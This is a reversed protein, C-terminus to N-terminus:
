AATPHPTSWLSEVLAHAAASLQSDAKVAIHITRVAWEDALQVTTIGPFREYPRLAASPLLAIGLGSQVMRCVSDMGNVEIRARLTTGLAKAKTNLLTALATKPPLAIWDEDILDRFSVSGFDVLRHGAPVVVALEERKSKLLLLGEYADSAVLVGVDTEGSILKDAIVSSTDEHLDVRVDPYARLFQALDEPLHQVIASVSASLRVHGRVGSALDSLEDDLQDIERIINQAYKAIAYGAPTLEAGRSTRELLAVGLSDELAIIRRSAASPVIHLQAAAKTLSKTEGIAQLLKLARLSLHDYLRLM